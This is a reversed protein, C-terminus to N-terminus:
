LVDKRSSRRSTRHFCQVNRQAGRALRRHGSECPPDVCGWGNDCHDRWRNCHAMCSAASQGRISSSCVISSGDSRWTHRSVGHGTTTGQRLCHKTTSHQAQANSCFKCLKPRSVNDSVLEMERRERVICTNEPDPDPFRPQHESYHRIIMGLDCENWKWAKSDGIQAVNM